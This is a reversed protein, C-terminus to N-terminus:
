KVPVLRKLEEFWNLVIHIEPQRSATGAAASLPGPAYLGIFRGDPMLDFSRVSVAGGDVTGTFRTPVEISIGFGFTPRTTVATVALQGVRPAFYLATGDPSWVPLISQASGTLNPLQYRTGTAPFPQVYIGFPGQDRSAYAVWRGDPSFMPSQAVGSVGAFPATVGRRREYTWLAGVFTTTSSPVDTFLLTDDNPSWSAPVHERGKEPRTLREAPGTGDARQWYLAGDGERDSQYTVRQGDRSWIPYRHNGGFTLRRLATRGDLDWIAVYAQKGDAVGAAIRTGDPSVRVTDYTGAPLALPTVTGTRDSLGVQSVNNAGPSYIHVLTGDAAVDYGYFPRLSRRSPVHAVNRAVPVAGGTVALRRADFAVGMLVNDVLYVLHGTALYRPAFGDEVLVRGEGTSIKQAAVSSGAQSLLTFLVTDGDPLLQSVGLQEGRQAPVVVAPTGGTAPMRHIGALQGFWITGDLGWFVGTPNEPVPGIVVPAGGSIAVRRLQGEQWYAVSQGDPSFVPSSYAAESGPIVHAELEDLGRVHLGGTANYVFRRGDPSIAVVQRLNGRLSRGDPVRYSFRNVPASAVTPWLRWAAAATLLVGVAVAAALTLARRWVPRPAALIPPPAQPASTEFAGELALRVSQMDGMRQTPKKQLCARLVPRVRAPLDVPLAEWAPDQKVVAALTDTLDEGPFARKGTLMEFLVAGFAWIDARRDVVKGRAQEPAMYAATGLIMGAQTMAPTTITPSQSVNPSSGVPPDMAKALGFDLVKVTGDARVKINAPKLDRHIIGQEHAAELAEAIQKAIPLAEDIPVVGKRIRQSLDDGEVLEMVLATIGGTEELGHIHAINPHNLAALTKAERTFRALRDADHAFAEPLVKIAVDRDLKTDRARFVAGM